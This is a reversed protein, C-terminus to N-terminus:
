TYCNSPKDGAFIFLGTDGFCLETKWGLNHLEGRIEKVMENLFDINKPFEFKDRFQDIAFYDTDDNRSILFEFIARRFYCTTRKKFFEKFKELNKPAIRDPFYHM